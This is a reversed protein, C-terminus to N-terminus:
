RKWDSMLRELEDVVTPLCNWPNTPLWPLDGSQHVQLVFVMESVSGPLHVLANASAIYRRLTRPMGAEDCFFKMSQVFERGLPVDLLLSIRAAGMLSRALYLKTTICNTTQRRTIAHPFANTPKNIRSKLISYFTKLHKM